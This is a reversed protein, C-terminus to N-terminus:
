GVIIAHVRGPGHVGVTLTMEIDASRSPGTVLVIQSPLGDPWWRARLRLVDAPTDVIDTADVVFACREPLLSDARPSTRSDIVISGTQAVAARARVCGPGFEGSFQDVHEVTGGLAEWAEVFGAVGTREARYRVEPIV